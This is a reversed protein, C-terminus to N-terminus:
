DEEIKTGESGGITLTWKHLGRGKITITGTLPGGYYTTCYFGFTGDDVPIYDTTVGPDVLGYFAAGVYLDILAEHHENKVRIYHDPRLTCGESLVAILMVIFFTKLSKM